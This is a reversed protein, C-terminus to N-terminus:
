TGFGMAIRYSDLTKGKILHRDLRERAMGWNIEAARDVLDDDALARRLAAAVEEPDEPPVLLAGRGDEVWEDACATWSQIPFSGMVLAELLSTSIGDSISLGLSVRAQGHHALIERRPVRRDLLTTTIGTSSRFLSAALSVEPSPSHIVVEYGALADACRELARLAVLARGAWHQYGKVMIKRRASVPGLQRLPLVEDLDIGGANPVVPLVTGRFGLGEALCVDRRCECSYFRCERLVDRIKWEHEPLRRFLYIDSGWNTAIWRPFEEEFRRKAELTLYAGHQFELSHVIDPKLRRILRALSGPLYAPFLKKLGQLALYAPVESFLPV